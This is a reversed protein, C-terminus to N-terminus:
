KISVYLSLNKAIALTHLRRMVDESTFDCRFIELMAEPKVEWNIIGYAGKAQPETL